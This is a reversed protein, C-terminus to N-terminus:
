SGIRTTKDNTSTVQSSIRFRTLQFNQNSWRTGPHQIRFKQLYKTCVKFCICRNNSFILFIEFKNLIHWFSYERMKVEICAIHVKWLKRPFSKLKIHFKNFNFCLMVLLSSFTIFLKQKILSENSNSGERVNRLM